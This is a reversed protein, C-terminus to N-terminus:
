EITETVAMCQISLGDFTGDKIGEWIFDYEPQDKVHITALWTGKKIQKNNLLMDAKTCYSEIFEVGDTDQMHWLNAKMCYRNFSHCSKEVTEADYWDLHLDSTTGDVEQPELVIFTALRQENASKSIFRSKKAQKKNAEEANVMAALAARRAKTESKTKNFTTNFVEITTKQVSDSKNKAFTPVNDPFSYPM